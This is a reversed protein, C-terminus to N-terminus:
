RGAPCPAQWVARAQASQLGAWAKYRTSCFCRLQLRPRCYVIFFVIANERTVLRALEGCNGRDIEDLDMVCVMQGRRQATRCQAVGLVVVIAVMLMLLSFVLWGFCAVPGAGCIGLLLPAGGGTANYAPFATANSGAVTREVRWGGSDDDVFRETVAFVACLMLPEIRLRRILWSPTILRKQFTAGLGKKIIFDVNKLLFDVNRLLFDPNQFVPFSVQGRNLEEAYQLIGAIRVLNDPSPVVRLGRETPRGARLEAVADLLNLCRSTTSAAFMLPLRATLLLNVTLFQLLVDSVYQQIFM